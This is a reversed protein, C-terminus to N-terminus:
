RNRQAHIDKNDVTAPRHLTMAVYSRPKLKLSELIESKGAISLNRVLSDIMINGTYFVKGEDTGEKRLNDLGSQESVFLFQAIRDTV